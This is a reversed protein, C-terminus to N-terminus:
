IAIEDVNTEEFFPTVPYWWCVFVGLCYLGFMPLFLYMMTLADPTPTIVASFIALIMVAYRWRDWYTQWTFLHIRTLFFMVLPTQFSVGFVLPLIIAFGLWENLRLDPDVGIWNNFGLLAHVAAPIVVFQCMTVGLLFLGISVPLYVHVYRKEHPYLGAGVFAWFQYFIWPCSLVIGCLLSVKFYVMFPETVGLSKLFESSDLELDGKKQTYAIYQTSLKLVIEIEDKEPDQNKLQPFHSELSKASLRAPMEIFSEEYKKPDNKLEELKQPLENAREEYFAKLQAKVPSIIFRLMPRGIGFNKWGLSEGVGDLLFGILLFFLLGKIANWMRIRLENLHEGFSMRSSSFFDEDYEARKKKKTISM